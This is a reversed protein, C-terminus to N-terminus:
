VQWKASVMEQVEQRQRLGPVLALEVLPFALDQRLDELLQLVALDGRRVRGPVGGLFGDRRV